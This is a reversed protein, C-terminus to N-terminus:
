FHCIPPHMLMRSNCVFLFVHFCFSPLSPPYTLRTLHPSLPFFHCLVCQCVSLCFFFCRRVWMRGRLILLSHVHLNRLQVTGPLFFLFLLPKFVIFFFFIVPSFFVFPAPSIVSNATTRKVADLSVAM